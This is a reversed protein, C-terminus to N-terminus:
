KLPLSAPPNASHFSLAHSSPPLGKCRPHIIEIITNAQLLIQYPLVVPPAFESAQPESDEEVSRPIPDPVPQTRDYGIVESTRAKPAGSEERETEQRHRRVGCGQEEVDRDRKVEQEVGNRPHPLSFVTSTLLNDRDSHHGFPPSSSSVDPSQAASVPASAEEEDGGVSESTGEEEAEEEEEEEEAESKDDVDDELDTLESADSSQGDHRPAPAAVKKAPPGEAHDDDEGGRKKKATAAAAAASKPTTAHPSISFDRMPSPTRSPPANAPRKCRDHKLEAFALDVKVLPELTFEASEFGPLPADDDKDAKDAQADSGADGEGAKAPDEHQLPM